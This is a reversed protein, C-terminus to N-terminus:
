MFLIDIMNYHGQTMSLIDQNLQYMIAIIIAILVLGIWAHANFRYRFFNIISRFMIYKGGHM